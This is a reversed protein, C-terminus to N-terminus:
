QSLHSQTIEDTLRPDGYNQIKKVNSNMARKIQTIVAPDSTRLANALLPLSRPNVVYRKPLETKKPELLGLLMHVVKMEGNELREILARVRM